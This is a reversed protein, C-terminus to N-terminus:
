FEHELPGPDADLSPSRIDQSLTKTTNKLRELYYAPITAWILVLGTEEVYKGILQKFLVAEKWVNEKEGNMIM